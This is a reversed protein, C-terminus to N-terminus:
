CDLTLYIFINLECNDIEKLIFSVSILFFHEESGNNMM